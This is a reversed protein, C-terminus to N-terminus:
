PVTREIASRGERALEQRANELHRPTPDHGEAVALDEPDWPQEAGTRAAGTDPSAGAARAAAGGRPGPGGTPGPERFAPPSGGQEALAPVPAEDGVALEVELTEEVPRVM